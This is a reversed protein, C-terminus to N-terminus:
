SEMSPAHNEIARALRANLSQKRISGVFMAANRQSM